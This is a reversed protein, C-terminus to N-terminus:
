LGSFPFGGPIGLGGSLGGLNDKMQEDVKSIADNVAATVLDQLMEIDDPDIVEPSIQISLLNKHGNMFVKVMGGGANGEV